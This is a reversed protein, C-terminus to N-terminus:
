QGSPRDVNHCSVGDWYFNIDNEHELYVLRNDPNGNSVVFFVGHGPVLCRVSEQVLKRINSVSGASCLVADFSGKCIILDFAEDPFPLGTTVDHCIFDTDPSIMNSATNYREKMQEIVVDSFDLNVMPGTWGDVCLVIHTHNILRVVENRSKLEGSKGKGKRMDEGCRSNGCGVILVRCAERPPFNVPSNTPPRNWARVGNGQAAFHIPNLLHRLGKYNQYWEDSSHTLLIM